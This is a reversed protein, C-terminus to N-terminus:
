QWLVVQSPFTFNLLLNIMFAKSYM